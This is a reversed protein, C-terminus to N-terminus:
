SVHASTPVKSIWGRHLMLQVQGGPDEGDGVSKVASDCGGHKAGAQGGVRWEDAVAATRALLNTNDAKTADTVKADEEGLGETGFDPDDGARVGLLGVGLGHAGITEDSSLVLIPVDRVLHGEVENDVGGVGGLAEIEIGVQGHEINVGLPHGNTQRFSLAELDLVCGEEAVSAEKSRRM